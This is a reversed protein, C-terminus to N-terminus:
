NSGRGRSQGPFSAVYASLDTMQADTIVDQGYAPMGRRGRRIAQDMEGAGRLALEGPANGVAGHCAGCAQSFYVAAGRGIADGKPDAIALQEATPTPIAEASQGSSLARVFSVLNWIERDPYRDRYSPMGTFSLGNKIIWFLEGDSKEQVDHSRLDTAPPYTSTGFVGRGDGNAGHCQGCSGTYSARGAAAARPDAAPAAPVGAAGLRAVLSVAANGYARELPLDQRHTLVLPAVAAFGVVAAVALGVALGLVLGALLSRGGSAARDPRRDAPRPGNVADSL